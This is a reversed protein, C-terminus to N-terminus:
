KNTATHWATAIIFNTVVDVPTIDVLSEGTCDLVPLMGLGIQSFLLIDTTLFWTRSCKFVVVSHVVCMPPFM